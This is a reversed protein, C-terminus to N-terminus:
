GAGWLSRYKAQYNGFQPFEDSSSITTHPGVYQVPLAQVFPTTNNAARILEDLAFWGIYPFPPQCVDVIETHHAAVTPLVDPDCNVGGEPINDKTLVPMADLALLDNAMLIFNTKPDKLLATQVAGQVDSPTDTLPVGVVSITCGPCQHKVEAVSGNTVAQQGPIVPYTFAVIHAKCGTVSLAGDAETAGEQAASVAVHVFEAKSLSASPSSAELVDIYHLGPTSTLPGIADAPALGDLVLYTAGRGIAQQLNQVASSTSGDGYYTLVTAGVAHGAAVLGAVISSATPSTIPAIFAVTKGKLAAGSVSTTPVVATLSKGASALTTNVTSLCSAASTGGGSAASNGTSSASSGCAALFLAATGLSIILSRRGLRLRVPRGTRAQALSAIAPHRASDRNRGARATDM